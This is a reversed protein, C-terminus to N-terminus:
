PTSGPSDAPMDGPGSRPGPGPMSGGSPNGGSPNGGPQARASPSAPTEGRFRRVAVMYWVVLAILLVLPMFITLLAGALFSAIPIMTM